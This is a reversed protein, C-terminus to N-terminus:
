SKSFKHSGCDCLGIRIKLQAEILTIGNSLIKEHKHLDAFLHVCIYTCSLTRKEQTKKPLLQHHGFSLRLYSDISHQEQDQRYVHRSDVRVAHAEYRLQLSKKVGQLLEQLQYELLKHTLHHHLGQARLKPNNHLRYKQYYINEISQGCIATLKLFCVLCRSPM